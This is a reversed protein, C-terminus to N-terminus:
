TQATAPTTAFRGLLLPTGEPGARLRVQLDFASPELQSASLREVDEAMANATEHSIQLPRSAAPIPSLKVTVDVIGALSGFAGSMLKSLDYGAVNKVVHGGSKVLRGDTTALTIGILLDRLTGYRSRLPGSDNTAVIGGITAADFATDIPLWQGERALAQNVERLTAGAQVTATLDGHRHAVVQSLRSTMLLLDIATPTRGWALKTGGGSIVTVLRERSAWALARGVD